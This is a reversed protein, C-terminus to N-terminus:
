KPALNAAAQTIARRVDALMEDLMPNPEVVLESFLNLQAALSLADESNYLPNWVWGSYIGHVAFNRGKPATNYDLLIGGVAHNYEGYLGVAKAALTVMDGDACIEM